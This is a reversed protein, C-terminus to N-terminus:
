GLGIAGLDALEVLTQLAELRPMGSVDLLGEIDLSGDMRSILFGARHTLGLWRLETEPLLVKPVQHTGGLRSTYLAELRRTCEDAIRQADTAGPDQGLVLQAARLAGTFDDLQFCERMEERLDVGIESPRRKDVLDIADSEDEDLDLQLSESSPAGEDDLSEPLSLEPGTFDMTIRSPRGPLGLDIAREERDGESPASESPAAPDPADDEGGM